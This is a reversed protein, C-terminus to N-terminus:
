FTYTKVGKRPIQPNIFSHFTYSSKGRFYSILSM